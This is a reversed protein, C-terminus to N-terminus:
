KILNIAGWLDYIEWSGSITLVFGDDLKEFEASCYQDGTAIITTVDANGRDGTRSILVGNGTYEQFKKMIDGKTMVQIKLCM